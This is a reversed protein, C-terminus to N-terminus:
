NTSQYFGAFGRVPDGYVERGDARHREMWQRITPEDAGQLVTKKRGGSIMSATFAKGERAAAEPLEPISESAHPIADTQSRLWARAAEIDDMVSKVTRGQHRARQEVRWRMLSEPSVYHCEGRYAAHLCHDAAAAHLVEDPVRAWCLTDTGGPVRIYVGRGYHVDGPEGPHPSGTPNRVRRWGAVPLLGERALFRALQGLSSGDLYRSPPMGYGADGQRHHDIDIGHRAHRLISSRLWLGGCEILLVTTAAFVPAPEVTGVASYASGALVRRGDAACAYAFRIGAANLLREIAVMEPDAAGLVAFIDM